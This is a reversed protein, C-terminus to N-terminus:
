LLLKRFCAVDDLRRGKLGMYKPNFYDEAIPEVTTPSKKENKGFFFRHVGVM